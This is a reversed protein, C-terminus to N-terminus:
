SKEILEDIRQGELAQSITLDMRKQVFGKSSEELHEIAKKILQADTGHVVKLLADLAENIEIFENRKLLKGDTQLAGRLANIVRDAEVQQERLTRLVVDEQAHTISDKLMVEIDRDTLGYSPKVVVESHVGSTIEKASVSLLGDADVQFTM